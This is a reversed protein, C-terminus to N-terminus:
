SHNHFQKSNKLSNLMLLKSSGQQKKTNLLRGAEEIYQLENEVGFSQPSSFISCTKLFVYSSLRTCFHGKDIEAATYKKNLHFLNHQYYKVKYALLTRRLDLEMKPHFQLHFQTEFYIM